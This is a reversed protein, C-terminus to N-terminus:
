RKYRYVAPVSQLTLAPLTRVHIANRPFVFDHDDSRCYLPAQGRCNSTPAMVTYVHTWNGDRWVLLVLPNCLRVERYAEAHSRLAAVAPGEELRRVATFHQKADNTLHTTKRKRDM